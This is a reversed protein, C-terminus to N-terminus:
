TSPSAPFNLEIVVGNPDEVFIQSLDLNPVTRERFTHGDRTLRDRMETLGSAQFALHDVTGSGPEETAARDGGVLHVVPRDGCYLWHGPFTFDPRWGDELGLVDVYFDRTARLDKARITFHDLRELTM